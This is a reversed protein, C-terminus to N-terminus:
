IATTTSDFSEQILTFSCNPRPAISDNDDGDDAFVNKTLIAPGADIVSRLKKWTSCTESMGQINLTGGAVVFPKKAVNCGTKCKNFPQSHHSYFTVPNEGVFHFHLIKDLQPITSNNALEEIVLEGQVFVFPTTIKLAKRIGPFVIKGIVNLGKAFVLNNNGSDAYDMVVCTGCPIEITEVNPRFNLSSFAVCPAEALARNCSLPMFMGDHHNNASVASTILFLLFTLGNSFLVMLSMM